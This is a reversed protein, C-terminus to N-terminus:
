HSQASEVAPAFWRNWCAGTDPSRRRIRRWAPLAPGSQLSANFRSELASGRHISRLTSHTIAEKAKAVVESPKLRDTRTSQLEVDASGPGTVLTLGGDAGRQLGRPAPATALSCRRARSHARTRPPQLVAPKAKRRACFLPVLDPVLRELFM